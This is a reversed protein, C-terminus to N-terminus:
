TILKQLAVCCFNLLIRTRSQHCEQLRDDGRHPQTLWQPVAIYSVRKEYCLGTRWNVSSNIARQVLCPFPQISPLTLNKYLRILITSISKNWNRKRIFERIFEGSHGLWKQPPRPVRVLLIFSPNITDGNFIHYLELAPASAHSFTFYNVAEFFLLWRPITILHLM